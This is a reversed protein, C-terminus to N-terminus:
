STVSMNYIVIYTGPCYSEFLLIQTKHKSKDNILNKIFVVSFWVQSSDYMTYQSATYHDVLGYVVSGQIPQVSYLTCHVIYMIYVSASSTLPINYVTCHGTYLTYQDIYINLITYQVIYKYNLNYM